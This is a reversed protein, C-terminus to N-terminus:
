NETKAIEKIQPVPDPHHYTQRDRCHMPLKDILVILGQETVKHLCYQYLRFTAPKTIRWPRLGAYEFRSQVHFVAFDRGNCLITSGLTNM